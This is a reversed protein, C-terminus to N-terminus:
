RLTLYQKVLEPRLYGKVLAPNSGREYLHNIFGGILNEWIGAFEEETQASALSREEEKYITTNNKIATTLIHKIDFAFQQMEAREDLSDKGGAIAGEQFIKSYKTSELLDETAQDNEKIKNQTTDFEKKIDNLGQGSLNMTGYYEEAEKHKKAYQIMKVGAPVLNILAELKKEQHKLNQNHLDIQQQYFNRRDQTLRDISTNVASTLDPETKAYNYASIDPLPNPRFCSTM